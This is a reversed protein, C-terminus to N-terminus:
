EKDIFYFVRFFGYVYMHICVFIYTCVEVCIFGCVYIYICVYMCAYVCMYVYMCIDSGYIPLAQTSAVGHKRKRLFKRSPNHWSQRCLVRKVSGAGDIIGLFKRSPNHWSQRHIVRKVSEAGDSMQRPCLNM